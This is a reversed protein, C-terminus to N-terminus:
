ELSISCQLSPGGNTLGGGGSILKLCHTVIWNKKKKKKIEFNQTIVYIMDYVYGIM